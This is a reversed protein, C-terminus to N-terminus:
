ATTLGIGVKCMNICTNSLSPLSRHGVDVNASITLNRYTVAITPLPIGVSHYLPRRQLTGWVGTNTRKWANEQQRQLTTVGVKIRTWCSSCSQESTPLPCILWSPLSRTGGPISLCARLFMADAEVELTESCHTDHTSAYGLTFSLRQLAIARLQQEDADKRQLDAEKEATVFGSARRSELTVSRQPQSLLDSVASVGYGEGDMAFPRQKTNPTHRSPCSVHLATLCVLGRVAHGLSNRVYHSLRFRREPQCAPHQLLAM